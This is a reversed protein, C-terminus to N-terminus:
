ERILRVLHAVSPITNGQGVSMANMLAGTGVFLMDSIEGRRMMPLYKASMVVASCGCGSGGSHMDQRDIDYIDLGCDGHVPTIDYGEMRMIERLLASGERGLDGTVIRDYDKPSSGSEKFYRCLTSGAAPAMAAGMNNLDDTGSDVIVGFMGESIKASNETKYPAIVFAGSGTVTWQSTPTRLAAYEVPFRFQREASCNHSSTVALAPKEAFSSFIASLLMSEACTSCAGFLGANPIGLKMIGHTSVICQNILDGSFAIGIDERRMKAAEIAGLAALRQMESEAMEWSNKGFTDDKDDARDFLESLPGDREVTGAVSYSSAIFAKDTKIIGM